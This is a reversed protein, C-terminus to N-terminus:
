ELWSKYRNRNIQSDEEEKVARMFPVRLLRPIVEKDRSFEDHAISLTRGAVGPKIEHVGPMELKVVDEETLVLYAITDEPPYVLLLNILDRVTSM